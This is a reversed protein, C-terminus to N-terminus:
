FLENAIHEAILHCGKTNPHTGDTVTGDAKSFYQGRNFKNFGLAYYNDIFPLHYQEAVEKTKAVFDTLKLGKDNTRTDSDDTFANAEDLFFRYTQSCIFIKLHPFKTLLTEISYRLASAFCGEDLPNAENDIMKGGNWDNTGYAITIIHVKNFDLEKLIALGESFYSPVAQSGTVALAEEQASWDGSVIADALNCMSFTNYTAQPHNSMHCGGFGCNHVTAGTIEALKTSIDEPPRRKGFISDGFNIVVKGELKKSVDPILSVERKEYTYDISDASAPKIPSLYIKVHWESTKTARYYRANAFIGSNVSAFNTKLNLIQASEAAMVITYGLFNKEADYFNVQVKDSTGTKAPVGLYATGDFDDWLAHYDKTRHLSGASMDGGTAPDLKGQEDFNNDFKNDTVVREEYKIGRIQERVAEGASAYVKGDAGLRIDELEPVAVKASLTRKIEKGLNVDYLLFSEINHMEVQVRIYNVKNTADVIFSGSAPRATGQVFTKSEDYVCARYAVDVAKYPDNQTGHAEICYRGKPVRIYDTTQWYSSASSSTFVGTTLDIYGKTWTTSTENALIGYDADVIGKIQERVAEGATTYTEGAAGVRVDGLESMYPAALDYFGYFHAGYIETAQDSNNFFSLKAWDGENMPPYIFAELGPYDTIIPILGRYAQSTGAAANPFLPTIEPLICGDTAYSGYADLHLGDIIFSFAASLGSVKISGGVIHEGELPYITENAAGKMKALNNVRAQTVSNLTLLQEYINPNPAAPTDTPTTIAGQVVNFRVAETTLRDEGQVGMLGFFFHGEQALVEQPVTAIDDQVLVHYVTDEDLYFVATKAPEEWARDLAYNFRIQVVNRSGSALRPWNSLVLRSGQPQVELIRKTM